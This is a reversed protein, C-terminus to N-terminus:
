RNSETYKRLMDAVLNHNPTKTTGVVLDTNSIVEYGSGDRYAKGILNGQIDYFIEPKENM